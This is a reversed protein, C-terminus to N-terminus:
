FGEQCPDCSGNENLVGEGHICCHNADMPLDHICLAPADTAEDDRMWFFTADDDIELSLDNIDM